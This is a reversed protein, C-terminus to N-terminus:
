KKKPPKKNEKGVEKFLKGFVNGVDEITAEDSSKKTPKVGDGFWLQLKKMGGTFDIRSRRGEIAVDSISTLDNPLVTDVLKKGTSKELVRFTVTWGGANRRSSPSELAVVVPLSDLPWGLVRSNKLTTEWSPKTGGQELRLLRGNITMSEVGSVSGMEMFRSGREEVAAFLAEGQRFARISSRPSLTTELSFSALTTGTEEDLIEVKSDPTAVPIPASASAAWRRSGKPFSRKWVDQNTAPDWLRIELGDADASSTRLVFRGRFLNEKYGDGFWPWQGEGIKEGDSPNVVLYDGKSGVLYLHEEDGFVRQSQGLDSRRWLPKGTEPDLALLEKSSRVVIFGPGVPGIQMASSPGRDESLSWETIVDSEEKLSDPLGPAVIWLMTGRDLVSIAAVRDGLVAYYVYGLVPASGQVTGISARWGEQDLTTEHDTKVTALDMSLFTSEGSKFAFARRQFYPADSGTPRIWQRSRRDAYAVTETRVEVTPWHKPEKMTPATSGNAKLFEAMAEDATRGDADKGQSAEKKWRELYWHGDQLLRGADAVASLGSLAAAKDEESKSTKLAATYALSALDHQRRALQLRGIAQWAQRGIPLQDYLTALHKLADLDSGKVTAAHRRDIERVIEPHQDVPAAKFVRRAFSRAWLWPDRSSSDAISAVLGTEPLSAQLEAAVLAATWRKANFHARAELRLVAARDRPDKSAKQLEVLLRDMLKFSGLNEESALRLLTRSAQEREAFARGDSLSELLKGAAEEFKQEHIAILGSLYLGRPDRNNKALADVAQERILDVLPFVRLGARGLSVLANGRAALNGLPRNPNDISLSTGTPKGTAIDIALCDGRETPLLYRGNAFVGRGSPAPTSASWAEEGDDLNLARIRGNGVLVVKRQIVGAVHQFDSREKRWISNGNRLELCHVGKLNPGQFVVKGGVIIPPDALPPNEPPPVVDIFNFNLYTRQSLDADFDREWLVTKSVLDVAFLRATNTPCIAVGESVVVTCTQSRRFPDADVRRNMLILRQKWTPRGTAPDLEWLGVESQLEAIVYLKDGVPTPPGFFFLQGNPDNAKRAESGGLRWLPKGTAPDLATLRNCTRRTPDSKDRGMVFLNYSGPQVYLEDILYIRKGDSTLTGYLTNGLFFSELSASNIARGADEWEDFQYEQEDIPDGDKYITPWLSEGTRLDLAEVGRCTRAYAADGVIIPQGGYYTARNHHRNRDAVREFQAILKKNNSIPRSLSAQEAGLLPLGGSTQATRSPNGTPLPWDPLVEAETAKPRELQAVLEALKTPKGAFLVEADPETKGKAEGVLKQAAAYKLKLTPTHLSQHAPGDLIRDLYVLALNPRGSDLMITALREAAEAGSRTLFFRRMVSALRASDEGAEKLEAAAEHDFQTRYDALFAPEDLLMREAVSTASSWKKDAGQIWTEEPHNFVQQVATSARAFAREARRKKAEDLSRVVTQDSPYAPAPETKGTDLAGGRVQVRVQSPAQVAAVIAVVTALRGVRRWHQTV